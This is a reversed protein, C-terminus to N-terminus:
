QNLERNIYDTNIHDPPLIKMGKGIEKVNAPVGTTNLPTIISRNTTVCIPAVTPAKYWQEPPLYNFGYDDWSTNYGARVPLQNYDSIFYDDQENPNVKNVFQERNVSRTTKARGSTNWENPEDDDCVMRCQRQLKITNPVQGPGRVEGSVSQSVTIQPQGQPVRPAMPSQPVMPSLPSQPAEPAMPAEPVSPIDFGEIRGEARAPCTKCPSSFQQLLADTGMINMTHKGLRELVLYVVLIAISTVVAELPQMNTSIFYRLLLYIIAIQALYKLMM